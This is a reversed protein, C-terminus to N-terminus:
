KGNTLDAYKLPEDLKIQKIEYDAHRKDLTNVVVKDLLLSITGDKVQVPKHLNGLLHAIVGMEDINKPKVVIMEDPIVSIVLLRKEGIKFASGSEM